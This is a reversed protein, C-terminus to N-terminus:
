VGQIINFLIKYDHENCNKDIFNRAKKKDVVVFDHGQEIMRNYLTLLNVSQMTKQRGDKRYYFCFSYGRKSHETKKYLSQIGSEEKERYPTKNPFSYKRKAEEFLEKLNRTETHNNNESIGSAYKM